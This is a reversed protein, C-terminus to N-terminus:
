IANPTPYLPFRGSVKEKMTNEGIINPQRKHPPNVPKEQNRRIQKNMPLTPTCSSIMLLDPLTSSHNPL